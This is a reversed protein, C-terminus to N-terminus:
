SDDRHNTVATLVESISDIAWFGYAWTETYGDYREDDSVARATRLERSDLIRLFAQEVRQATVGDMPASVDLRTWGYRSLKALRRTPNNSIGIKRQEQGFWHRQLLYVFGPLSPKYGTVACTPCDREGSTRNAVAATWTHEANRPCRWVVRLNSGAVIQDATLSNNLTPDLQAAVLPYRTALSNTVSLRHGSCCPCGSRSRSFVAAPWTHDPGAPCRWWLMDHSGALVQDAALGNYLTPDLQSAVVPNRAALSNTVSLQRGACAPCGTREGTRKFVPAAWIHDPGAQCRWTLVLTSGVIVQDATLGNNLAPDLQAAIEQSQIALNNTVSLRKNSCFPCNTGVVSRQHATTEWVHDPGNPYRWWVRTTSSDAIVDKPTLGGNLAPDM